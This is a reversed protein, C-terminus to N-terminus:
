KTFQIHLLNKIFPWVRITGHSFSLGLILAFLLQGQQLTLFYHDTLGIGIIAALSLFALLSLQSPKKRVIRLNNTFALGLLVCFLALGAIGTESLVLLFINHVPQLFEFQVHGNIYYPLAILFNNLGVGFLPNKVFMGIAAHQLLLRLDFSEVYAYTDFFRGSFYPIFSLIGVIIGIVISVTIGIRKGFRFLLTIILLSVWVGIAVRALTLLLVGSGFVIFFFSIIRQSKVKTYFATALFFLLAIVVYGAFVNPHPFTAYPRLVLQGHITANAIGPTSASFNREGLFYWLGNISRQAIFEWLGLVGELMVGIIFTWFLKPLISKKQKVVFWGFFTLESIKILEYWGAFPSQSFAIGISLFLLILWFWANIKQVFQKGHLLFLGGICVDSLYITPSLYDVRQGIVFAFSPWFHKGFQFPLFVLTLFLLLSTINNIRLM